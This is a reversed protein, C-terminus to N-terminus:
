NGAKARDVVQETRCSIVIENHYSNKGFLNKKCLHLWDLQLEVLRNAKYASKSILTLLM